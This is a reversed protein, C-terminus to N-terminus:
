AGRRRVHARKATMAAQDQPSMAEWAGPGLVQEVFLRAGAEPEGRDILSSVPGVGAIFEAVAPDDAVLAILPPEHASVSRVLEPRRALVGLAISGGFSNAVLHAPALDRHEILAALDDEDDRRSGPETSDESGTHGRRDYSVVRFSEALDSEVFTWVSRDDWSGHVLVVPDGSGTEEVLLRVGNIDDLPM